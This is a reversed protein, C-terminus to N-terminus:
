ELVPQSRGFARSMAAVLSQRLGVHACDPQGDQNNGGSVLNGRGMTTGRPWEQPFPNWSADAICPQSYRARRIQRHGHESHHPHNLAALCIDIWRGATSTEARDETDFRAVNFARHEEISSPFNSSWSSFAMNRGVTVSKFKRRPWGRLDTKLWENRRVWILTIAHRRLDWNESLALVFGLKELAKTDRVLRLISLAEVREHLNADSVGPIVRRSLTQQCHTCSSAM